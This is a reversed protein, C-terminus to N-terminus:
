VFLSTEKCKDERQCDCGPLVVHQGQCECLIL